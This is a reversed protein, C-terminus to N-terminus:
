FRCNYNIIFDSVERIAKDGGQNILNIDSHEKVKAIANFPTFSWGVSCINVLDNVDDGVYAVENRNIKTENLYHNLRSYKDKVGMFLELNLKGMRSAVIKSNESTMVIVKVGSKQLLDLGMGDRLSFTKFLEGDNSVGVTGPTFVGDVDLVLLKIKNLEKKFVSLRNLLLKEMIILDSVEDIETLTDENMEVIEIKGGLRNKSTQFQKKTCVYVAGNEIRLGEFDQRRPRKSYNYNISNANKDWIFRKTNVVTLAADVEPNSFKAIVNNIDTATTLPSTAQLLCIHTYNWDIKESFEVMADETSSTDSANEDSRLITKVKNSWQYEKNVQDIIELDDTFVYVEDLNSFIAESLCWQYMPRGLIRKKNKGPIGKSGARLPIIAVSKM